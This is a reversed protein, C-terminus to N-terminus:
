VVKLVVLMSLCVKWVLHFEQKLVRNGWVLLLVSQWLMRVELFDCFFIIIKCWQRVVNCDLGIQKCVKLDKLGFCTNEKWSKELPKLCVSYIGLIIKLLNDGQKM